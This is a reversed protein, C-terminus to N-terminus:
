KAAKFLESQLKAGPKIGRKAFWGKNMELAFRVKEKSCLSTEDRPKMDEFNVIRGDDAIFAITLPLLTNKMWFCQTAAQEFVFLMGRNDGMTKRLMLGMQRQEPTAAIEALVIHMGAQVPLTALPPQPETQAFSPQFACALLSGICATIVFIRKFM